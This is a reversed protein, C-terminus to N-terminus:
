QGLAVPGGEKTWDNMSGPYIDVDARGSAKAIALAQAARHGSRCMLVVPRGSPSPLAEVKFTSLPLNIAGPIHGAAFEEPERVDILQIRNAVIASRVQDFSLDQGCFAPSVFGPLLCLAVIFAKFLM